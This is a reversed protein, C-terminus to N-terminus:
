QPASAGVKAMAPTFLYDISPDAGTLRENIFMIEHPEVLPIVLSEAEYIRALELTLENREIPDLTSRAQEYLADVDPNNYSPYNYPSTSLVMWPYVALPDPVSNWSVSFAIDGGDYNKDLGAESYATPQLPLLEVNLGISNASDQVVQALLSQTQDGALIQLEIPEGDYGSEEVLQRAEDVTMEIAEKREEEFAVWLDRAEPDRSDPEIMTYRPEATGNFVVQAIGQRDMVGSLARRINVDGIPGDVTRVLIDLYQRSPGVTLIGASEGQLRDMVTPSIEYAGDVEGSILAQALATSDSFFVFTLRESRARYEDNWYDDNRVMTLSSGSEWSEFEFPGTCMIGGSATGLAEGAAESFAQQVVSSSFSTMSKLFQADPQTFTITVQMPGTKEISEVFLFTSAVYSSPSAARELTYLVDDATMPQGDWFTVDDRLDFVLTTDDVQEFSALNPAIQGDEDRKLLTECMQSSVFSPSYDLGLIPDMTTPEGYSLGWVIEEVDGQAPPTSTVLELSAGDSSGDEAPEDTQDDDGDAPEDTQDDDGDAPEDTQDAGPEDAGDDGEGAPQDDDATAPEDTADEGDDSSEGGCAVALMSAAIMAAALRIPTKRRM